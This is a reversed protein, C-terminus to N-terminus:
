LWRASRELLDAVHHDQRALREDRRDARRIGVAALEDRLEEEGELEAPEWQEDRRDRDAISCRAELRRVEEHQETREVAEAAEEYEGRDADERRVDGRDDDRADGARRDGGVQARALDALLEVRQLHEADVRDLVEDHRAEKRQHEDRAQEVDVRQDRADEAPHDRREHISRREAREPRGEERVGRRGLQPARQQLRRQEAPDDRDDAAVLAHGGGAPRRADPAGDVLRDHDSEARDAREVVDERLRQEGRM